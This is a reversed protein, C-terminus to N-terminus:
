ADDQWSECTCWESVPAGSKACKGVRVYRNFAKFISDKHHITIDGNGFNLCDICYPITPVIEKVM